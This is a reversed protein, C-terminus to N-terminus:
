MESLDTRSLEVRMDLEVAFGVALGLVEIASSFPHRTPNPSKIASVFNFFGSIGFFLPGLRLNILWRM